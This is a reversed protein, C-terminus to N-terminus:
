PKTFFWNLNLQVLRANYGSSVQERRSSNFMALLELMYEESIEYNLLGRLQRIEYTDSTKNAHLQRTTIIGLDIDTEFVLKDLLKKRMLLGVSWIDEKYPSYFLPNPREFGTRKGM